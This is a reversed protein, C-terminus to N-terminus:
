FGPYTANFVSTRGYSGASHTKILRSGSPIYFEYNEDPDSVRSDSAGFYINKTPLPISSPLTLMTEDAAYGSTIYIVGTLYVIGQIARVNVVLSGADVKSSTKVVDGALYTKWGTDGLAKIINIVDTDELMDEITVKSEAGSGNDTRLLTTTPNFNGAAGLTNTKPYITGITIKKTNSFGSDDVALYLGSSYSAQTDTLEYIRLNAM